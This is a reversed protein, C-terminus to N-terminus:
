DAALRMARVRRNFSDVIYLVDDAAFALGRPLNLRALRAPGGDGSFGRRGNGAITDILHPPRAGIRRVRHNNTDAVYLNGRRDFALQAPSDLMAGSAAEGDGGFGPRGTGAISVIRGDRSIKRIRHNLMDSVYLEGEGDFIIAAPWNFQAEIALGGDGGDGATGTGAITVLNGGRDVKRISHTEQCAIFLDGTFPHRAMALPGGLRSATAPGGEAFNSRGARGAIREVRPGAATKVVSRVTNGYQDAVLLSGDPEIVLATPHVMEAQDPPGGDGHLGLRGSGMVTDVIGTAPRVRRVTYQMADPLYFDGNSAIAIPGLISFTADSAVTEARPQNAGFLPALEGNRLRLVRNYYVDAAYIEGHKGLGLSGFGFERGVDSVLRSPAGGPAALMITHAARDSYVLEGSADVAFGSISFRWGALSSRPDMLGASSGTAVTTILGTSRNVMRIRHNFLDLVFVNGQGDVRLETPFALSAELAPGNDGGFGFSGNGAITAIRGPAIDVPGVTALTESLNAARIRYNGSDSIFVVGNRDIAVGWPLNLQAQRADEGDGGFRSRSFGEHAPFLTPLKEDPVGHIGSGAITRVLGDAQSIARIRHNQTDAVYIDGTVADVSLASPVHFLTERAKRGDGNFGAAQAGAFPAVTGTALDFRFVMHRAKDVAYVAERQQDVAIAAAGFVAIAYPPLRSPLPSEAFLTDIHGPETPPALAARGTESAQMPGVLGANLLALTFGRRTLQPM